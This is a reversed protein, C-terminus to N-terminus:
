VGAGDAAEADTIMDEFNITADCDPYKRCGFFVGNVGDRRRMPGHDPDVPCNPSVNGAVAGREPDLCDRVGPCNTERRTSCSWFPGYRGGEVWVMAEGCEPCQVGDVPESRRVPRLVPEGDRDAYWADCGSEPPCHWYWRERKKSYVRKLRAKCQPCHHYHRAAASSESKTEM